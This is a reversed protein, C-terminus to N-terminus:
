IAEMLEHAIVTRSIRRERRHTLRKSFRGPLMYGDGHRSGLEYGPAKRSKHTRSM